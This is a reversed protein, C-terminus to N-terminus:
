DPQCFAGADDPIVCSGGPCDFDNRCEGCLGIASEGVQNCHDNECTADADHDPDIWCFEGDAISGPAVCTRGVPSTPDPYSCLTDGACDDDSDCGACTRFGPLNFCSLGPECSADSICGAGQGGAACLGYPVTLFSLSCSGEECERDADCESCIGGLDGLLFCAGSECDDPFDCEAGVPAGGPNVPGDSGSSSSSGEADGTSSDASPSPGTTSGTDTGPTAASTSSSSSAETTSGADGADPTPDVVAPCGAALLLTISLRVVM